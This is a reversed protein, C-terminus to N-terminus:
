GKRWAPSAEMPSLCCSGVSIVQSGETLVQADLIFDQCHSLQSLHPQFIKSLKELTWGILFSNVYSNFLCGPACLPPKALSGADHLQFVELREKDSALRAEELTSGDNTEM